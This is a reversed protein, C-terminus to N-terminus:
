YPSKYMAYILFIDIGFGWWGILKGLTVGLNVVLFLIVWHWKINSVFDQINM